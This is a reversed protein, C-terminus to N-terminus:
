NLHKCKDETDLLWPVTLSHVSSSCIDPDLHLYALKLIVFVGVPSFCFLICFRSVVFPLLSEHRSCLFCVYEIVPVCDFRYMWVCTCFFLRALGPPAHPRYIFVTISPIHNTVPTHFSPFILGPPLSITVEPPSLSSRRAQVGSLLMTYVGCTGFVLAHKTYSSYTNLCIYCWHVRKRKRQKSVHMLIDREACQKM